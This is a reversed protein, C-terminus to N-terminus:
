ASAGRMGFRVALWGCIGGLLGGAVAAVPDAYTEIASIALIVGAALAVALVNYSEEPDARRDPERSAVYAALAGLAAGNLGAADRFGDGLASDVGAAALIGLSGCALALILAAVSGIRREVPPLFIAIALGCVFLYGADEFFFPAALYGWVDTRYATQFIDLTLQSSAGALAGSQALGAQFLVFLVGAAVLIGTTALPRTSLEERRGARSDHADAARERREAARRLKRERRGERVRIEDGERQLKPARKRLRTGCYPCETVYPSVESGCNRCVM